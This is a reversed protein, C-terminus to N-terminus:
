SAGGRAAPALLGHVVFWEEGGRFGFLESCALVFLRWRRYAREAGAAGHVTALERLVADRAADLRALWVELTERYHTGSVRWREEVHLHEPFSSLWDESPMMGGTFFSRAMWDAQGEDEYLYAFRRHCFHHVFLRGDPRLWEAIRELLLAHNRVHEFMEVSVVRDFRRAPRFANVDATVVEVRDLGRRACQALIHERQPKSNSVALVLCRPFREALWLTFSGWGCGLDLVHMGDEIRAREASLALMADEAAALDRIGESWLASSYKLRPGLVHEFFRPPVEYHQQNADDTAVALPVTRLRAELTRRRERQAEPGGRSEQALRERLMRRIGWRLAADPVLGREALEIAAKRAAAAIPAEM